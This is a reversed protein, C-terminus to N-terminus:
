IYIIKLGINFLVLGIILDSDELLSLKLEIMYIFFIDVVGVIGVEIVDGGDLQQGVVFNFYIFKGMLGVM